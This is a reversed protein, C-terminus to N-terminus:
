SVMLRKELEKFVEKEIENRENDIRSIFYNYGVVHPISVILGLITTILAVNIGGALLQPDTVGQKAMSGFTEFIGMVTGLLGLLPALSSVTGITTLGKELPAFACSVETRILELMLTQNAKVTLLNGLISKPLLTRESKWFRNLTIFKWIIQWLGIVSIGCIVWAIPGGQNVFSYVTM